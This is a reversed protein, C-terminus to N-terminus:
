YLHNDAEEFEQGPTNSVSEPSRAGDQSLFGTSLRFFLGAVASFTEGCATPNMTELLYRRNYLGTLADRIAQQRLSGRMKLSALTM